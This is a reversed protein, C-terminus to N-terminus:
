YERKTQFASAVNSIPACYRNDSEYIMRLLAYFSRKCRKEAVATKMEDGAEGDGVEDPPLLLIRILIPM